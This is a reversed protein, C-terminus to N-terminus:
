PPAGAPRLRLPLRAPRGGRRDPVLVRALRLRGRARRGRTGPRAPGIPPFAGAVTPHHVPGARSVEEGPSASGLPRAPPPTAVCGLAPARPGDVAPGTRGPGM